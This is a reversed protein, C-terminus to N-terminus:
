VTFKDIIYCTNGGLMASQMKIKNYVRSELKGLRVAGQAKVSIDDIKFMGVVESPINSIQVEEWDMCSKVNTLNLTSSYEETRGSKFQIKLVLSRSISNNFDEGPYCYKINAEDIETINAKILDGNM